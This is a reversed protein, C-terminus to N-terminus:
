LTNNKFVLNRFRKVWFAGDSNQGNVFINGEVRAETQDADTYGLRVPADPDDPSRYTYNDLLVLREVPHDRSNVFILRDGNAFSINGEIHFGDVYGDEGYAKMGTPTMPALAGCCAATYKVAMGWMKGFASGRIARITYWWILPRKVAGLCTCALRATILM